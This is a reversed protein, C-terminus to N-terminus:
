RVIGAVAAAAAAEQEDSMDAFTILKKAIESYMNSRTTSSDGIQTATDRVAFLAPGRLGAGNIAADLNSAAIANFGNVEELKGTIATAVTRAMSTTLEFSGPEPM